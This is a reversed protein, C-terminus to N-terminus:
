EFFKKVLKLKSVHNSITKKVKMFFQHCYSFTGMFTGFL